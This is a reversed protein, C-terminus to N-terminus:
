GEVSATLVNHVHDGSASNIVPTWGGRACIASFVGEIHMRQELSLIRPPFRLLNSEDNQWDRDQGLIADGYQNVGRHVTGRVDGHLRTGYTGWTIHYALPYTTRTNM